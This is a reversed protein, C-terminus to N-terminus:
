DKRHGKFYFNFAELFQNKRLRFYHLLLPKDAGDLILVLLLRCSRFFIGFLVSCKFLFIRVKVVRMQFELSRLRFFRWIKYKM